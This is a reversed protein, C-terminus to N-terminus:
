WGMLGDAEDILTALEASTMVVTSITDGGANKTELDFQRERPRITITSGDATHVTTHTM